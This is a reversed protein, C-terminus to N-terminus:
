KKWLWYCRNERTQIPKKFEFIDSYFPKRKGTFILPEKVLKDTKGSYNASTNYSHKGMCVGDFGNTKAYEIIWDEAYDVISSITQKGGAIQYRSLELSNCALFKSDSETTEFALVLGLRHEKSETKRYVGFLHIANDNLYLPVSYGNGLEKINDSVFICCGSDNGFTVDLPDKSLEKITYTLDKKKKLKSPAALDNIDPFDNLLTEIKDSLRQIENMINRPYMVNPFRAHNQLISLSDAKPNTIPGLDLIQKLGTVTNNYEYLDIEMRDLLDKRIGLPSKLLDSYVATSNRPRYGPEDQHLALDVSIPDLQNTLNNKDNIDFETMSRFHSIAKSFIDDDSPNNIKHIWKKCNEHLVSEDELSKLAEESVKKPNSMYSEDLSAIKNYLEDVEDEVFFEAYRNKNLNNIYEDLRKCAKHIMNSYKKVAEPTFELKGTIYDRYASIITEKNCRDKVHQYVIQKVFSDLYDLELLSDSARVLEDLCFTSKVSINLPNSSVTNPVFPKSYAKKALGEFIIEDPASFIAKQLKYEPHNSFLINNITTLTQQGVHDKIHEAWRPNALAILYDLNCDSMLLTAQKHLGKGWFTNVINKLSM